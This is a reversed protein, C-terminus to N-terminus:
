SKSDGVYSYDLRNIVSLMMKLRQFTAAVYFYQWLGDTVWESLWNILWAATQLVAGAVSPRNFIPAKPGFPVRQPVCLVSIHAVWLLVLLFMNKKFISMSCGSLCSMVPRHFYQLTHVMRTSSMFCEIFCRMFYSYFGNSYISDKKLVWLVSLLAVNISSVSCDIFCSM